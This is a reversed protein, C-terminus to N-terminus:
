PVNKTRQRIYDAVQARDAQLDQSLYDQSDPLRVMRLCDNIRPSQSTSNAISQFKILILKEYHKIFPM